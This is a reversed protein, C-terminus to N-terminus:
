KTMKLTSRRLKLLTIPSLAKGNHLSCLKSRMRVIVLGTCLLDGLVV